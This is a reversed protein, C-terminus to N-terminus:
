RQRAGGNAAAWSGATLPTGSDMSYLGLRAVFDRPVVDHRLTRVPWVAPFADATPDGGSAPALRGLRGSSTSTPRRTCGNSRRPGHDRLPAPPRM